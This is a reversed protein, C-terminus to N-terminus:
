LLLVNEVKSESENDSEEDECDEHSFESVHNKKEELIVKVLFMMRTM